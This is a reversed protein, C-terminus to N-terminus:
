DLALMFDGQNLRYDMGIVSGLLMGWYCIWASITSLALWVLWEVHPVMGSGTKIRAKCFSYFHCGLFRLHRLVDQNLQFVDAKVYPLHAM